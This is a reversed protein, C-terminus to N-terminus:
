ALRNIQIHNLFKDPRLKINSCNPGMHSGSTGFPCRTLHPILPSLTEQNETCGEPLYSVVCGKFFSYNSGIAKCNTSECNRGSVM